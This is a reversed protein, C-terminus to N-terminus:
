ALYNAFDVHKHSQFNIKPTRTDAMTQVRQAGDVSELSGTKADENLQNKGLDEPPRMAIAGVDPFGQM